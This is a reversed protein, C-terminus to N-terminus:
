VEVNVVIKNQEVWQGNIKLYVNTILYPSAVISFDTYNDAGAWDSVTLNERECIVSGEVTLNFTRWVDETYSRSRQMAKLTVPYYGDPITASMEMYIPTPNAEWYTSPENDFAYSAQGGSAQYTFDQQARMSITNHAANAFLIDLESAGAYNLSSAGRLASVINLRFIKGSYSPSYKAYIDGDNGQEATPTTTGLLVGGGGAIDAIAQPMQAPTLAASTGGRERIADAINQFLSNIAM